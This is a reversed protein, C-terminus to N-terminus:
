PPHTTATGEDLQLLPKLRRLLKPGIGEVELLDDFRRFLGRAERHEVIRRALVPGVGPLRDLDAATATNVNVASPTEGAPHRAPSAAPLGDLRASMPAENFPYPTQIIRPIVVRDGDRLVAALNVRKLDAIYTPGHAAFIADQIRAGASLVYLGPWVVEGVVDVKIQAPAAPTVSPAAPAPDPAGGSGPRSAVFVALGVAAAVGALVVQKSRDLQM